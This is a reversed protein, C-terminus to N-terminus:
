SVGTRIHLLKIQVVQENLMKLEHLHKSDVVPAVPAVPALLAQLLHGELVQLHRLRRNDEPRRNNGALLRNKGALLHSSGVLLRSSGVRHRSSDKPARAARRNVELAVPPAQRSGEQVVRRNDEVAQILHLTYQGVVRVRHRRYAEVVPARRNIELITTQDGRHLLKNAVVLKGAVV